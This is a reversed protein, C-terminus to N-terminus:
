FLQLLGLGFTVVLAVVLVWVIIRAGPDRPNFV